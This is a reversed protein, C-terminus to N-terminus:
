LQEILFTKFSLNKSEGVRTKIKNKNKQFESDIGKLIKSRQKQRDSGSVANMPMRSNVSDQEGNGANDGLKAVSAVVKGFNTLNRSSDVVDNLRLDNWDVDNCRVGQGPGKSLAIIWGKTCGNQDALFEKARVGVDSSRPSSADLSRNLYNQALGKQAAINKHSTLITRNFSRLHATDYKDLTKFFTYVFQDNITNKPTIFGLERLVSYSEHDKDELTEIRNVYKQKNDKDAQIGILFRYEKPTLEGYVKLIKQEEPPLDNAWAQDADFKHALMTGRLQKFNMDNLSEWQKINKAMEQVFRNGKETTIFKGTDSKNILGNKLAIDRLKLTNKFTELTQPDLEDAHEDVARQIRGFDYAKKFTGAVWAVTPRKSSSDPNIADNIERYIQLATAM